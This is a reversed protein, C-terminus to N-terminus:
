NQPLKVQFTFDVTDSRMLPLSINAKMESALPDSLGVFGLLLFFAPSMPGSPSDTVTHTDM